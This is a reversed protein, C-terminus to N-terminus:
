RMVWTKSRYTSEVASRIAPDGRLRYDLQLTKRLFVKAPKGSNPDIVTPHDITAIENSLGTIFVKFSVARSDFDPWIVAIDRSNDEGQLLLNESGAIKAKDANRAIRTEVKGLSELFPYQSKHREKIQDFVVSPVGVGAPVIQFTDTMLECRPRFDVDDGTRNTVTLIMYWFRTEGNTGYPLVLQQPQEFRTELTWQGQRQVVAPLPAAQVLGCAILLLTGYFVYTRM